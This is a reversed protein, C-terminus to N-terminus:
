LSSQIKKLLEGLGKRKLASIMIPNIVKQALEILEISDNTADIKNIVTIIKKDHAELDLLIDNVTDIHEYVCPHSADIVHLIIDSYTVEELTARFASVLHTPLKQIFGVTDTLLITSSDALKIKRVTPDLTAFLMNEVLVNSGSLANLLTSKGANTYGVLSLVPLNNNQRM